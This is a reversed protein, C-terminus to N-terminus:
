PGSDASRLIKNKGVLKKFNERLNDQWIEYEPRIAQNFPGTHTDTCEGAVLVTFGAHREQSYSNKFPTLKIEMGDKIVPNITIHGLNIENIGENKLFNEQNFWCVYGKKYVGIVFERDNFVPILFHGEKNTVDQTAKLTVSKASDRHNRAAIWRIAVAADTLPLGTDTDVVRGQITHGQLIYKPSCATTLILCLFCCSIFIVHYNLNNKM